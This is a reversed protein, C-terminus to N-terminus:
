LLMVTVCLLFTCLEGDLKNRVAELYLVILDEQFLGNTIYGDDKLNCSPPM